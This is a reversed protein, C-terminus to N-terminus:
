LRVKLNNLTMDVDSTPTDYRKASLSDTYEVAGVHSPKDSLPKTEKNLLM